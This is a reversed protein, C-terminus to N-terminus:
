VAGISFHVLCGHLWVETSRGDADVAVLWAGGDCFGCGSVSSPRTLSGSDSEM